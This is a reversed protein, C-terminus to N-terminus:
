KKAAADDKIQQAARRYVELLSEGTSAPPAVPALADDTKPPDPPPPRKAIEELTEGAALRRYLEFINGGKMETLMIDTMAWVLADARNPSRMGVYGSVSFDLLEGELEYFEGAHRVRDNIWDGNAEHGYLASVPEARVAKGRSATAPRYPISKDVSHIVARVMDGGFNAEGIVRDAKFEHFANVVVRGWAEPPLDCTRDALVYAMGDDARGAVIIGVSDSRVVVDVIAIV